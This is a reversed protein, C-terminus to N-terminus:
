WKREEFRVMCRQGRPRSSIIQDEVVMDARVDGGVSTCFREYVARVLLQMEAMALSGSDAELRDFGLLISNL